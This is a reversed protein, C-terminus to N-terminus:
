GILSVKLLQSLDNYLDLPNYHKKYRMILNGHPDIIYLRDGMLSPSNKVTPEPNIILTTIYDHAFTQHIPASSCTAPLLLVSRVRTHDAGLSKIVQRAVLVNMLCDKDCCSSSNYLLSWQRVLPKFPLQEPLMPPNILVGNNSTKFHLANAHTYLYQALLSPLFFTALLGLFILPSLNNKQM